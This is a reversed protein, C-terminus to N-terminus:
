PRVGPIRFTHGPPPHPPHLHSPQRAADPLQPRPRRQPDTEDPAAQRARPRWPRAPTVTSPRAAATLLPAPAACRRSSTTPSFASSSTPPSAAKVSTHPPPAGQPRCDQFQSAGARVSVRHDSRDAAGPHRPLSRLSPLGPEGGSALAGLHRGEVGQPPHFTTWPFRLWRSPLPLTAWLSPIKAPWPALTRSLPLAPLDRTPNM